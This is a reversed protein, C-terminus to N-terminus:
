ILNPLGVAKILKIFTILNMRNEYKKDYRTNYLEILDKINKVETIRNKYIRLILFVNLIPVVIKPYCLKRIIYTNIIINVDREKGSVRNSRSPLHLVRLDGFYAVVKGEKVATLSAYLEESGFLLKDPYLRKYYFDKRLIHAGGNYSIVRTGKFNEDYTIEYKKSGLVRNTSPEYIEVAAAVINTAADMKSCIVEFFHETEIVADDDLFFVYEGRALSMAKNRGGAVGLNEYEYIYQYEINRKLFYKEVEEKTGDISHNDVIVFETGKIIKDVCSEIARLLEIKRNYTIIAITLKM